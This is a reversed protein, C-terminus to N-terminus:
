TLPRSRADAEAALRLWAAALQLWEAKLAAPARDALQRCVAAVSECHEALVKFREEMDVGDTM